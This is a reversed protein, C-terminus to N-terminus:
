NATMLKTVCQGAASHALVLVKKFGAQAVYNLWVHKCHDVMTQSHPVKVGDTEAQNPNMVLVPYGKEVAWNVQPLMSGLEFDENICVSRSWIGARVAGM